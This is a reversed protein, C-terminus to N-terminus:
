SVKVFPKLWELLEEPLLHSYIDDGVTSLDNIQTFGVNPYDDAIQQLFNFRTHGVGIFNFYIPAKASVCAEILARTKPQDENEGDTFPYLLCPLGTKSKSGVEEEVAAAAGGGFLRERWSAQHQAPVRMFGLDHLVAKMFPGYATGGWKSDSKLGDIVERQIYGLYNDKTLEPLTVVAAVDGGEDNFGYVPISGNDDFNLAVPVVREVALQMAGGYYLQKTSGSLDIAAVVESEIGAIGAKELVFKVKETDKEVNFLSM